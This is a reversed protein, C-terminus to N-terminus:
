LSLPPVSLVGAVGAVVFAAGAAGAVVFAAGYNMELNQLDCGSLKDPEKKITAHADRGHSDFVTIAPKSNSREATLHGVHFGDNKNRYNGQTNEGAAAFGATGGLRGGVRRVV